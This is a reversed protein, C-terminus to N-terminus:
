KGGGIKVGLKKALLYLRTTKEQESIRPPMNKIQDNTYNMNLKIMHRKKM